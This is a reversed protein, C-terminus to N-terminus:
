SRRKTPREFTGKDLVDNLLRDTHNDSMTLVNDKSNLTYSEVLTKYRVDQTPLWRRLAVAYAPQTLPSTNWSPKVIPNDTDNTSSSPMNGSIRLPHNISLTNNPIPAPPGLGGESGRRPQVGPASRPLLASPLSAIARRGVHNHEILFRPGSHVRLTRSHVPGGPVGGYRM